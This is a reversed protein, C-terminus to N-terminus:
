DVREFVSTPYLFMYAALFVRTNVRGTVQGSGPTLVILGLCMKHICCLALNTTHILKPERLYQVIAEFSCRCPTFLGFCLPLWVTSSVGYRRCFLRSNESTTQWSMPSPINGHYILFWVPTSCMAIQHFTDKLFTQMAKIIKMIKMIQKLIFIFLFFSVSTNAAIGFGYNNYQDLTNPFNLKNGNTNIAVTTM